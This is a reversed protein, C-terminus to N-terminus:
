AIALGFYFLSFMGEAVSPKQMMSMQCHFALLMRLRAEYQGLSASEMFQQFATVLSKITVEEGAPQDSSEDGTKDKEIEMTLDKNARKEKEQQLYAHLLQYLHFWWKTASQEQHYAM